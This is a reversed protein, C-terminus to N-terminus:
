EFPLSSNTKGGPQSLVHKCTYLPQELPKIKHAPGTSIERDMINRLKKQEHIRAPSDDDHICTQKMEFVHDLAIIRVQM